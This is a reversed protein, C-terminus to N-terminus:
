ITATQLAINNTSASISNSTKYNALPKDNILIDYFM